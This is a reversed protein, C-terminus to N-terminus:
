PEEKRNLLHFILAGVVLGCFGSLLLEIRYTTLTHLVVEETFESYGAPLLERITKQVGDCIVIFDSLRMGEFFTWM